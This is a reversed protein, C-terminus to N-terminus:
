SPPAAPALWSAAVRRLAVLAKASPKFPVIPAHWEVFEDLPAPLTANLHELARHLRLSVTELETSEDFFLLDWLPNSWQITFTATFVGYAIEVWSNALRRLRLALFRWKGKVEFQTTSVYFIAAVPNWARLQSAFWKNVEQHAGLPSCLDDELWSAAAIVDDVWVLGTHSNLKANHIDVGKWADVISERIM